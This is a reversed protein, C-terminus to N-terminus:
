PTECLALVVMLQLVELIHLDLLQKAKKAVFTMYVKGSGIALFVSIVIPTSLM